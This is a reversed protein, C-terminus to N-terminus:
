ASRAGQWEMAEFGERFAFRHLHKDIIGRARALGEADEANVEVTLRMDDARLRAPGAQLPIVGEREDFQVDLKHSFHKCLQQLYKSAHSTEFRGTEVMM